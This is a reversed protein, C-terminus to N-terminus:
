SKTINAGYLVDFACGEDAPNFPNFVDERKRVRTTWFEQYEAGSISTPMCTGRWTWCALAISWELEHVQDGYTDVDADDLERVLAFVTVPRGPVRAVQGEVRVDTTAVRLAGSHITLTRKASAAVRQSNEDPGPDADQWIEVWSQFDGPNDTAPDCDHMVDITRISVVIKDSVVAPVDDDDPGTSDASCASLLPVLFVAGFSKFFRASTM